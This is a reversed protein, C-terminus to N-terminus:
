NFLWGVNEKNNILDNGIFDIDESNENSVDKLKIDVGLTQKFDDMTIEFENDQEQLWILCGILAMVLDDHVDKTQAKYTNGIKVFTTLEDITDKDVLELINNEVLYKFNSTGLRKTKTTTRFGLEDKDSFSFIREYEYVDFLTDVIGQGESNNEICVLAENYFMAVEYTLEALETYHLDRTKMVCVQKMRFNEIDLAIVQLGVYDSNDKSTSSIKASDLSLIYIYESTPYDYVKIDSHISDLTDKCKKPSFDGLTEPNILTASSGIFQCKHNQNLKIIDGNMKELEKQLWEEDRGEVATWDAFYPVFGNTGELAEKYYNHFKNIGNPTSIFVIKTNKGSSLAPLVSDLFPDMKNPEIFAAEDVLLFNLTRGKFAMGNAVRASVKANNELHISKVNWRKVGQQLFPPLLEFMQKIIGLIDEALSAENAVIGVTFDKNFIIYWLIISANTVTKGIQRSLLGIVEKNELIIKSFEKQYKRLKFPVIGYDLTQIQVYNEVFYYYDVRCKEIEEKAKNTIAIKSGIPRLMPNGDFSLEQIENSNKAKGVNPYKKLNEFSFDKLSITDAM